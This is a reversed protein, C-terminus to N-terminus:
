ILTRDKIQEPHIFAQAKSQLGKQIFSHSGSELGHIFTSLLKSAKYDNM